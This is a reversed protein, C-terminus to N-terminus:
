HAEREGKTHILSISAFRFPLPSQFNLSEVRNVVNMMIVRVCAFQIVNWGWIVLLFSSQNNRFSVTAVYQCPVHCIAANFCNIDLGEKWKRNRESHLKVTWGNISTYYLSLKIKLLFTNKVTVFYVLTSSTRPYFLSRFHSFNLSLAFTTVYEIYFYRFRRYIYLPGRSFPSSPRSWLKIKDYMFMLLTYQNEVWLIGLFHMCDFLKRYLM